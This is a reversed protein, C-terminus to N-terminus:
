CIWRKKQHCHGFASKRYLIRKLHKPLTLIEAQKANQASTKNNQQPIMNVKGWQENVDEKLLVYVGFFFIKKEENDGHSKDLVIDGWRLLLRTWSLLFCFAAALAELAAARRWIQFAFFFFFFFFVFNVSVTFLGVVAEVFPWPDM